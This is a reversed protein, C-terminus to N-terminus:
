EEGDALREVNWGGWMGEGVASDHRFLETDKFWEFQGLARHEDPSLTERNQTFDAFVAWRIRDGTHIGSSHVTRGHWFIVTGAPGAFEVPRIEKAVKRIADRYGTHPSWNAETEHAQFMIRHSGPYVTFGGSRPPVDDLYVCVNLQQCVQDTHPGLRGVAPSERPFIAYVGRTRTSPRLDPGLLAEAVGRVAPHNPVLRKLFSAAGLEHLKVTTGSYVVRQRGEFAGSTDAPPMEGWEPSRWSDPQERDVAPVGDAMPVREGFHTWVRDMAQGLAAPGILGRKVLFGNDIFFRAEAPSVVAQAEALEPMDFVDSPLAADEVEAEDAGRGMNRETAMKGGAGRNYAGHERGAETHESGTVEPVALPM